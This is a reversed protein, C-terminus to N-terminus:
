KVNKFSSIKEDILRFCHDHHDARECYVARIDCWWTATMRLSDQRECVCVCVCVCVRVYM